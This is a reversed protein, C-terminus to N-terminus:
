ARELRHLLKRAEDEALDRHYSQAIMESSTVRDGDLALLMVRWKEEIRLLAVAQKPKKTPLVVPAPKAPVRVDPPKNM